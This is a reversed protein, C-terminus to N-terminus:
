CGRHHVQAIYLAYLTAPLMGLIQQKEAAYIEFMKTFSYVFVNQVANKVMTNGKNYLKDAIEFCCRVMKYNHAKINKGTFVILANMADYANGKKNVKLEKSIDPLAEELYSPIELQSIM